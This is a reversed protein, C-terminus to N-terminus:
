AANLANLFEPMKDAPVESVKAAGVAKLAELVEARKGSSLLASARALAVESLDGDPEEVVKGEVVGESAPAAEAREADTPFSNAAKKAAAKKAPAAAKKAAPAPQEAKAVAPAPAEDMFAVARLIAKDEDSLPQATDFNIQIQM